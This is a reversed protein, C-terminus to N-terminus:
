KTKNDKWSLELSQLFNDIISSCTTNNASLSGDLSIKMGKSEILIEIDVDLLPVVGDNMVVINLLKDYLNKVSNSDVYGAAREIIQYHGNPGHHDWHRVTVRGDSEIVTESKTDQYKENKELHHIRYKIVFAM